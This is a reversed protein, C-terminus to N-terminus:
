KQVLQAKLTTLWNTQAPTFKALEMLAIEKAETIGQDGALQFWAVAQIYDREPRNPANFLLSALRFQCQAVGRAACLRFYRRARDPERPVGDGKESRNGLYFQAQTSGLVSAERMTKLGNEGDKLLDRGEIQRIATEYMAPGYNRAAAKQILELGDATDQTVHEGATEWIGMLYMAPPFKQRSLDQISKVARDLAKPNSDSRKITQLAVNFSTRQHEAKEDFWIEPFRFNVEVTALIKVPKGDKVGPAFRWTEVASQAREDLGFGLPSIVTIGTPRGQEDVALELVVTGQVHDARAGPSYEPEVKHLLRPPTIGSGVRIAGDLGSSEQANLCRGALLSVLSLIGIGLM